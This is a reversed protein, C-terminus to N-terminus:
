RINSRINILGQSPIIKSGSTTTITYQQVYKGSLDITDEPLLAVVFQSVASGSTGSKTVVAQSSGYKSLNWSITAGSLSVPNDYEDVVNFVLEENAGGSMVFEELDFPSNFPFTNSM